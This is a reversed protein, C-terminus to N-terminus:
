SVRNARVEVVDLTQGGEMMDVAVVRIRNRTIHRTVVTQNLGGGDKM